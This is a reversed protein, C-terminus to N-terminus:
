SLRGIAYKAPRTFGETLYFLIGDVIVSSNKWVWVKISGKNERCTSSRLEAISFGRAQLM